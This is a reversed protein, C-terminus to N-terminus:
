SQGGPGPNSKSDVFVVEHKTRVLPEGEAGTIEQREVWGRHKGKCKLHFCIAGLNGEKIQDILKSETFDLKEENIALLASQIKKNAKIRKYLGQYTIGLGKAADTVFGAKAELMEIIKEAPIGKKAM